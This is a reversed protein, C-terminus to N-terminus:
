GAIAPVAPGQRRGLYSRATSETEGSQQPSQKYQVAELLVSSVFQTNFGNYNDNLSM